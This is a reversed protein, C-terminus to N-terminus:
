NWRTELLVGEIVTPGGAANHQSAQQTALEQRAKLEEREAKTLNVNFNDESDMTMAKKKARTIEDSAATSKNARQAAEAEEISEITHGLQMQAMKHTFLYYTGAILLLNHWM